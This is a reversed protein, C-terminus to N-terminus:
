PEPFHFIRITNGITKVPTKTRFRAYTGGQDYLRNISIAYWGAPTIWKSPDAEDVQGAPPRPYSDRLPFFCECDVYLPRAEPHSKAWDELAMYDQGWDINADALVARGNSPGGCLENFYSLCHPFQLLMSIAAFSIGGWAIRRTWRGAGAAADALIGAFIFLFPLCPAVYRFYVTFSTQASAAVFIALPPLLLPLLGPRPFSHRPLARIALFTATAFIFLFGLPIKVAAAAGYWYWWGGYKWQGLLYAWRGSEVDALQADLGKLYDLPLPVPMRDIWGGRFRTGVTTPSATADSGSIAFSRFPIDGLRTFAGKGGYGANLLTGAVIFIVSLQILESRFRRNRSLGRESLSGVYAACFCFPLVIASFKTLEAIGLTIGTVLARSATPDRLWRWFCWSALVITAAAPVDMTLIAAYAIINPSVCWLAVAILGAKSGFLETAWGFCAAAGLVTFGLMVCRAITLFRLSRERGNVGVFDDGVLWEPRGTTDAPLNQWDLNPASLVIPVAALIKALPPNVSYLDTRGIEWYAVGSVLHAFEDATPGTSLNAGVVAVIHLLILAAVFFPTRRDFAVTSSRTEV